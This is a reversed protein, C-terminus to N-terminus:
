PTTKVPLKQDQSNPVSLSYLVSVGSSESYRLKLQLLKGTVSMILCGPVSPSALDIGRDLHHWQDLLLIQVKISFCNTKASLTSNSLLSVGTRYETRSGSCRERVVAWAKSRYPGQVLVNHGNKYGWVDLLHNLRREPNWLKQGLEFVCYWPHM